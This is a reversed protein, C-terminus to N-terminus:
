MTNIFIHILSLDLDISLTFEPKPNIIQLDRKIENVGAAFLTITLSILILIVLLGATVPFTNKKFVSKQKQMKKKFYYEM